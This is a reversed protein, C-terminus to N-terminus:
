AIGNGIRNSRFRQSVVRLRGIRFMPDSSRAFIGKGMTIWQMGTRFPEYSHTRRDPPLYLLRQLIQTFTSGTPKRLRENRRQGSTRRFKRHHHRVTTARHSTLGAVDPIDYGFQQRPQLMTSKIRRRSQIVFIGGFGNVVCTTVQRVVQGFVRWNQRRSDCSRKQVWIRM